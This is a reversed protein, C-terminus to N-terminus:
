PRLRARCPPRMRKPPALAATMKAPLTFWSMTSRTRMPRPAASIMGAVSDIMVLTKGRSSRPRAMPTHAPVAAMPMPRPGRAPPNSRSTKEHLETKRILTGTAITASSRPMLSTGSLRSGAGPANSRIPAVSEAVASSASTHATISAGDRPQVLVATIAPRTAAASSVAPNMAQSRRTADGISFRAYKRLGRKLMPESAIEIMKKESIAAIKASVCNRCNASPYLASWAPAVITGSASPSISLAVLLLRRTALNPVLRTTAPPM